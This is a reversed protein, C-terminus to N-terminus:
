KFHQLAENKTIPSHYSAIGTPQTDRRTTGSFRGLPWAADGRNPLLRVRWDCPERAVVGRRWGQDQRRAVM